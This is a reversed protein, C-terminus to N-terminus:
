DAKQESKKKKSYGDNNVFGMGRINNELIGTGLAMYALMQAEPNNAINGSIKDGVLRINKYKVSIPVRNKKEFKTFLAFDDNIDKNTVTVYKKMLNNKIIQQFQEDTVNQTSYKEKGNIVCPTLSYLKKIRKQPLWRKDKVKGAQIIHNDSGAVFSLILDYINKKITRITLTYWRDAEYVGLKAMPYLSDFVYYTYGRKNHNEAFDENRCLAEEIFNALYNQIEDYRIEKHLSIEIMIQYVKIDDPQIM